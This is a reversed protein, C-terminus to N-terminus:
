ETDEPPAPLPMWHTPDKYFPLDGTIVLCRWHEGDWLAPMVGKKGARSLLVVDVFEVPNATEILQWQDRDVVNLLYDNM